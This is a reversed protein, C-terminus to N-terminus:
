LEHHRDHAHTQKQEALLHMGSITRTKLHLEALAVTQLTEQLNFQLKPTSM